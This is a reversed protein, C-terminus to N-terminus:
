LVVRSQRRLMQAVSAAQRRIRGVRVLGAFASPASLFAAIQGTPPADIVILDYLPAGHRRPDQPRLELTEYVMGLALLDRLGPTATIVQDLTGTRMLSRPVHRMGAYRRLYERVSEHPTISLVHFGFRTRREEFGPDAIGLTQTMEGRGEVEALLVRRGAGSAAMALAAAVTSKGTGGKGSVIVVGPRLLDAWEM